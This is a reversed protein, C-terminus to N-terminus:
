NVLLFNVVLFLLIFSNMHIQINKLLTGHKQQYNSRNKLDQYFTLYHIPFILIILKQLYETEAEAVAETKMKNWNIHKMRLFFYKKILKKIM